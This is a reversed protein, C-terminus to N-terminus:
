EQYLLYDIISPTNTPTWSGEYSRVEEGNKFVRWSGENDSRSDNKISGDENRIYEGDEDQAEAEYTGVVGESNFYVREDPAVIEVDTFEESASIKQAMSENKVNGESDKSDCGTRCSYLVVTMGENSERNKWADSQNNLLNNLSKGSDIKSGDKSNVIYNPNGHATVTVLKNNNKINQSGSHIVPNKEKNVLVVELGELEVGDIVRNESFNYTGNYVYEEALPDIQWFRGIAPDSIRYKWEHTNLGLDETFEQDQYTKLNNKVGYMGNNYGKHEMGFPYYNQERRIESTGDISGNRNDDAYTIRINSQHDKLYYVYQWDNGDPEIYGEPQTIQKLSSNEYIYGGAYDTTTVNGNDNTVKRLKTRDAAYIYNVKKTDSNNFKVETPMNLHNYAIATIGKNTDMLLNGNADYAYDDATDAAQNVADDKFGFQDLPAADVVKMLKNGSDYSYSLIDMDGFLTAGVNTHGKRNLSM